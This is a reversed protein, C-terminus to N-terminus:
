PNLFKKRLVDNVKSVLNLGINPYSNDRAYLWGTSGTVYDFLAKTAGSSLSGYPLKADLAVSTELLTLKARGGLQTRFTWVAQSWQTDAASNSGNTTGSPTYSDQFVPASACDAQLFIEASDFSDTTHFFPALLVLLAELATTWVETVGSKETVSMAVGSGSPKVPITMTHAHGNSTYALKIYGPALCNTSM